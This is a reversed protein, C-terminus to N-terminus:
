IRTPRVRRVASATRSATRVSRQVPVLAPAPNLSVSTGLLTGVSPNAAGQEVNIIM